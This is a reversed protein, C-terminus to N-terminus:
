NIKNLQEDNGKDITMPIGGPRAPAVQTTKDM